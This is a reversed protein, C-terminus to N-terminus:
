PGGPKRSASETEHSYIAEALGARSRLRRSCILGPRLAKTAVAASGFGSWYSVRATM